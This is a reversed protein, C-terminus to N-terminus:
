EELLKTVLTQQDNIEAMEIVSAEDQCNVAIKSLINLHDNNKGAIGIVLHAINGDGFDVGNPYQIVSIGSQKIEKKADDTGHPIAVHNGIYTTVVEEREHMKKVYAQNVCGSDVLMQGALDIADSKHNQSQEDDIKQVQIQNIDM